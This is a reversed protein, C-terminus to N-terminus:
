AGVIDKNIRVAMDQIKESDGSASAKIIEKSFDGPAMGLHRAMLALDDPVQPISNKNLRKIFDMCEKAIQAFGKADYIYPFPQWLHLPRLPTLKYTMAKKIYDKDLSIGFEDPHEAWYTRPLVGAPQVLCSDPRLRLILDLTEQISEKTDGPAPVIVSIITLIGAEKSKKIVNKIQEITIGKNMMRNLIHQNGSEMGFFMAHLGSQKLLKFTEIDANKVHGFSIYDIKLGSSIILGAIERLLNPPTFSGAFKFSTIKHRGALMEMESVIRNADKYRWRGGSKAPHTCFYCRNPCGRSEDIVAFRLKADTKLGPYVEDDYCPLPLSNLDEIWRIDNKRVASGDKYILNPIDSLTRKGESYEALGIVADEGEGICIAEFSDTVEYINEQFLDAHPGGAFIKIRSNVKKIHEAITISSTFGDGNWLKFGIFDAEFEEIKALIEKAIKRTEEKQISDLRKYISSIKLKELLNPMKHLDFIRSMIPKIQSSLDPPFHQAVMDTTNYDLILPKHGARLLSGALNALGNDPIFNSPTYPYGAYTVLIGKAM